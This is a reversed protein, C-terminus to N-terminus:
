PSAVEQFRVIEETIDIGVPCWAVCRGCGVCGSTGFQDHWTALKHTMWQRYRSRTSSRVAGGHIYSFDANFCSDWQEWREANEGSLDTTDEVTTCFCTPCVMTCNACSLCREAIDDWIPSEYSQYLLTKVDTNDFVRPGAAMQEEAQQVAAKQQQHHLPQAPKVPLKQLIELGKGSGSRLLFYHESANIVETLELDCDLSVAPGTNMSACFCTAAAQTCNVAVTFIAQRRKKYDENHHQGSLFVRDQVAIAHLECSRVGLFALPSPEDIIAEINMGDATKQAQWIKRRPPHLYKKWADPGVNYGFWANDQRRKLRYHGKEQEDTWGQPLDAASHIQDYVIAQNDIVPGLVQYGAQRLQLILSNLGDSALIYSKVNGDEVM